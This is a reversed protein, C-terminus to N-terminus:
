LERADLGANGLKQVVVHEFVFKRVCDQVVLVNKLFELFLLPLLRRNGCNNLLVVGVEVVLVLLVDFADV